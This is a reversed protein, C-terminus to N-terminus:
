GGLYGTERVNASCFVRFEVPEAHPAEHVTGCAHLVHQLASIVQGDPDQDIVIDMVGADILARHQDLM